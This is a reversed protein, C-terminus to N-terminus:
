LISLYIGHSELYSKFVRDSNFYKFKKVQDASEVICPNYIYYQYRDNSVPIEVPCGPKKTLGACYTWVQARKERPKRKIEHKRKIATLFQNIFVM